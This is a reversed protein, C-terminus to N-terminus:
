CAEEQYMKVSKVTMGAGDGTGWTDLWTSNAQWFDKM